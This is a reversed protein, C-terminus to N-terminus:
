ALVERDLRRFASQVTSRLEPDSEFDVWRFLEVFYDPCDPDTQCLGFLTSFFSVCYIASDWQFDLQHIPAYGDDQVWGKLAEYLAEGETAGLLNTVLVGDFDQSVDWLIDEVRVTRVADGELKTGREGL